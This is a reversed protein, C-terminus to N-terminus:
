QYRALTQRAAANSIETISPLNAQLRNLGFFSFCVLLSFVTSYFFTQRNMIGEKIGLHILKNFCKQYDPTFLNLYKGARGGPPPPFGPLGRCLDAGDGAAGASEM